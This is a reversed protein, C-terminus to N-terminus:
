KKEGLIIYTEEKSFDFLKLIQKIEGKEKKPIVLKSLINKFSEKFVNLLTQLEECKKKYYDIEDNTNSNEKKKDEDSIRINIKNIPNNVDEKSDLYLKKYKILEMNEKQIKEFNEEVKNLKDLLINYKEISILGEGSKLSKLKDEYINDNINNM